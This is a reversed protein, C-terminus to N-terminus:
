GELKWQGGTLRCAVGEAKKSTVGSTLVVVVHRCVQGRGDKFSTVPQVMGSLRGNNRHWIYSAGDGVESLAFQVSELAAIEDSEDLAVPQSLTPMEAFKPRSWMKEKQQPCGCPEGAQSGTQGPPTAQSAASQDRPQSKTKVTTKTTTRAAAPKTPKSAAAKTTSKAPQSEAAFALDPTLFISAALVFAVCSAAALSFLSPHERMFFSVFLQVLAADM